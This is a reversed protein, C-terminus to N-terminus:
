YLEMIIIKGEKDDLEDLTRLKFSMFSTMALKGCNWSIFDLTLPQPVQYGRTPIRQKSKRQESQKRLCYEACIVM